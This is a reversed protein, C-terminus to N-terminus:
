VEDDSLGDTIDDGEDFAVRVAAMSALVRARTKEVAGTEDDVFYIDYFNPNNM